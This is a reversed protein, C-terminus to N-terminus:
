EKTCYLTVKLRETINLLLETSLIANHHFLQYVLPYSM